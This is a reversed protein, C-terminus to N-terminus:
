TLTLLYTFPHFCLTNGQKSSNTKWVKAVADAKEKAIKAEAAVKADETAKAEEAKIQEPTKDTMLEEKTIPTILLNWDKNKQNTKTIKKMKYVHRGTLLLFKLDM